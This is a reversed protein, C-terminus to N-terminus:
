HGEKLSRLKVTKYGTKKVLRDIDEESIKDPDYDIYFINLMQNEMIDIVGGRKELLLRVGVTCQPCSVDLVQFTVRRQKKEM